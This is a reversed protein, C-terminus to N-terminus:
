QGLKAAVDQERETRVPVRHRFIDRAQEVLKLLAVVHYNRRAVHSSRRTRVIVNKGTKSVPEKRAAHVQEESGLIGVDHHNVPCVLLAQNMVQFEVLVTPVRSWFPPQVRPNAPLRHKRRPRRFALQFDALYGAVLWRSDPALSFELDPTPARGVVELK